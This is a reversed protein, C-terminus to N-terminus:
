HTGAKLAKAKAITQRFNDHQINIVNVKMYVIKFVPSDNHQLNSIM